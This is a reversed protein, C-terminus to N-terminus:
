VVQPQEGRGQASKALYFEEGGAVHKEAPDPLFVSKVL